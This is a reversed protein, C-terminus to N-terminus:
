IALKLLQAANDCLLRRKLGSDGSSVQDVIRLSVDQNGWPWDSAYMVREPGFVNLLKGVNEASQFSIDVYVNTFGRLLDMVTEIGDLGAHGVIFNVNPFAKVIDLAPEIHGNDPVARSKEASDLYYESYGSHFLVPLGHPAFAEVAAFTQESNLAVRQLIPHLKMGRAGREVDSALKADLDTLNEYDIGTFPLMTGDREYAAFLHDFTVAPPVAMVACYGIGHKDMSARMNARTATASRAMGAKIAQNEMLRAGRIGQWDRKEQLNLPDFLVKKRLHGSEIIDGGDPYLVDGLHTHIDIIPYTM